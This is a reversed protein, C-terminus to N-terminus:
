IAKAGHHFVDVFYFLFRSFFHLYLYTKYAFPTLIWFICLVGLICCYFYSLGFSFRFSPMFLCKELSSRYLALLGMFLHVVDIRMLFICILVLILCSRMGMLIALIFFLVSRGRFALFIEFLCGLKM